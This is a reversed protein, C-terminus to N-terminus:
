SARVAEPTPASVRGVVALPLSRGEFSYGFSTVHVLPSAGDVATLFSAVDDYRSTEVYRTREARTTLTDLASQQAQAPGAALLAVAVARLITSMPGYIM